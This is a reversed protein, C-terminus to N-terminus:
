EFTAPEYYFKIKGEQEKEGLIPCMDTMNHLNHELLHLKDEEAKDAAKKVGSL